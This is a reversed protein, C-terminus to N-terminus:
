AAQVWTDLIYRLIVMASFKSNTRCGLRFLKGRGLPRM